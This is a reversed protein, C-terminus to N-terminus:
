GLSPPSDLAVHDFSKGARSNGGLLDRKGPLGKREVIGV